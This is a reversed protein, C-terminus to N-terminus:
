NSVAGPQYVVVKIWEEHLFAFFEAGGSPLEAGEM